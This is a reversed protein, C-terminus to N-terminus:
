TRATVPSGGCYQCTNKDREFITTAPHIERKKPLHDYDLLLIV